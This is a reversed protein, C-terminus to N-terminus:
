PAVPSWIPQTLVNLQEGSHSAEVREVVGEALRVTLTFYEVKGFVIVYFGETARYVYVLTKGEEWSHDPEGLSTLLDAHKMGKQINVATHPGIKRGRTGREYKAICGAGIAVLAVLALCAILAVTGRTRM